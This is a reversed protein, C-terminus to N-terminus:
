AEDLIDEDVAAAVRRCGFRGAAHKLEELLV